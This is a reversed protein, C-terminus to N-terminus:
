LDDQQDEEALPPCLFGRTPATLKIKSMVTRVLRLNHVAKLQIHSVKPNRSLNGTSFDFLYDTM